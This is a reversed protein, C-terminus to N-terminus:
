HLVTDLLENMNNKELTEVTKNYADISSRDYDLGYGKIRDLTTSYIENGDRASSVRIVGTLYTIYISGSISGRETITKGDVWLDATNKDLTFEFGSTALFNKLKNSIQSYANRLDFSKEDTMIYVVPRQVKLLVQAYPVKLSKAIFDFIASGGSGSLMEIDGKVGVTQELERSGIKTLLIKAEGLNNTKYQPFVIGEGKEFAAVLPFDIAAANLDKYFAKAIVTQENQNMRRNLEIQSPDVSLKVKDLLSQISAYIENTILVARDKITVRIPEALYKEVSRFAQFYFSMAQIRDGRENADLGKRYFDTALLVANRKQEEKIERYRSKSLRYYVWYNNQDEWADVLEFEEIEDAAETQIIQEYREHFQKDLDIQSLVSTSSVTVKIESVLDELASKKAIQIYNSSGDKISHGIGTYYGSPFPKASLWAPKLSEAPQIKKSCGALFVLLILLFHKV